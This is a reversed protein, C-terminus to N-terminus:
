ARAREGVRSSADVFAVGGPKRGSNGRRFDRVLHNNHVVWCVPALGLREPMAANSGLVPIGSQGSNAVADRGLFASPPM